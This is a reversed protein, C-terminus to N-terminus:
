QCLHDRSEQTRALGGQEVVDQSLVVALANSDDLVLHAAHRAPALGGLLVYRRASWCTRCLQQKHVLLLLVDCFAGQHLRLARM